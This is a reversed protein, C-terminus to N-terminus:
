FPVDGSNNNSNDLTSNIDGDWTQSSSNNNRSSNDQRSSNYDKPEFLSLYIYESGEKCPVGAPNFSTKIRVYRRGDYECVAGVNEYKNKKKGDKTYSGVIACVDYLIKLSKTTM